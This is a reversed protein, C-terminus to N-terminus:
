IFDKDFRPQARITSEAVVKILKKFIQLQEKNLEVSKSSSKKEGKLLVHLPATLGFLNEIFDRKYNVTGLFPRLEKCNTQM